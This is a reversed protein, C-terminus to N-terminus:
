NNNEESDDIPKWEDPTKVSIDWFGDPTRPPSWRSKHRSCRELMDKLTCETVLGQRQLESFYSQCQDCIHGPLVARQTKNRVVDIYKNIHTNTSLKSPKSLSTRSPPSTTTITTTTSTTSPLLVNNHKIRNFASQKYRTSPKIPNPNLNKYDSCNEPNQYSTSYQFQNSANGATQQQPIIHQVHSINSNNKIVYPIPLSVPVPFTPMNNKGGIVADVTSLDEPLIKTTTIVQPNQTQNSLKSTHMIPSINEANRGYENLNPNSNILTNKFLKLEAFVEDRLRKDKKHTRYLMKNEQTLKEIERLLHGRDDEWIMLTRDTHIRTAEYTISAIYRADM